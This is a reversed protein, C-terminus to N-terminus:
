CAEYECNGFFIQQARASRADCSEQQASFECCVKSATVEDFAGIRQKLAVVGVNNEGLPKFSPGGSLASLGGFVRHAPQGDVPPEVPLAKSEEVLLHRPSLHSPINTSSSGEDESLIVSPNSEDDSVFEFAECPDFFVSGSETLRKSCVRQQMDRLVIINRGM